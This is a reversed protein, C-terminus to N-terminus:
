RRLRDDLRPGRRAMRHVLAAGSRNEINCVYSGPTCSILFTAEARRTAAAATAGSAAIPIEEFRGQPHRRLPASLVQVADSVIVVPLLLIPALFSWDPRWAAGIAWRGAVAAAGAALACGIAVYLDEADTTSLTLVWIGYALLSWVIGEVVRGLM